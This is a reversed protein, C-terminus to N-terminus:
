LSILCIEAFARRSEVTCKALLIKSYQNQLAQWMTYSDMNYTSESNTSQCSVVIRSFIEALCGKNNAYFMYSPNQSSYKNHHEFSCKYSMKWSEGVSTWENIHLYYRSYLTAVNSSCHFLERQYCFFIGQYEIIM